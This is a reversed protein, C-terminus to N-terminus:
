VIHKNAIYQSDNTTSEGLFDQQIVYIVTIQVRHELAFLNHIITLVSNYYMISCNDVFQYVLICFLFLCIFRLIKYQNLFFVCM